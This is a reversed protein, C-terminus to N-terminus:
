HSADGVGFNAPVLGPVGFFHLSSRQRCLHQLLAVGDPFNKHGAKWRGHCTFWFPFKRPGIAM